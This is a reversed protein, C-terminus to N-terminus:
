QVLLVADAILSLYANEVGLAVLRQRDNDILEHWRVRDNDIMPLVRRYSDIARKVDGSVLLAHGLNMYDNIRVKDREIIRMSYDISLKTNGQLLACWAISRWAKSGADEMFDIKLYIDMAEQLHGSLMLCHGKPLLAGIDDPNNRLIKDYCGIANDFQGLSRYCSALRLHIWRDEVDTDSALSYYVVAEDTQGNKEYATGLKRYIKADIEKDGTMLVKYWTIADKYFEHLLLFDATQSISDAELVPNDTIPLNRLDWYLTLMAPFENRRSFMNFFRYLDQVVTNIRTARRQRDNMDSLQQKLAEAENSMNAAMQARAQPPIGNLSLIMSFKDSGCVAINRDILHIFQQLDDAALATVESYDVHFPRFWNAFTKFFSFSKMKAFSGAFVDGGSSHLEHLDMFQEALESDEMINSLDTSQIGQRSVTDFLDRFINGLRDDIQKSLQPTALSRVLCTQVIKVDDRWNAIQETLLAYDDHVRRYSRQVRSRHFNMALLMFVLARLRTDEHHAYIYSRILTSLKNEDYFCMLGVFLAGVIISGVHAPVSSDGLIDQLRAVDNDDLSLITWLRNFLDTECKELERASVNNGVQELVRNLVDQVTTDSLERRRAYFVDRSSPQHVLIEVRDAIHYVTDTIRKLMADRDPDAGGSAVYQLMYRYSDSVAELEGSLEFLGGDIIRDRLLRMAHVLRGTEIHAYIQKLYDSIM